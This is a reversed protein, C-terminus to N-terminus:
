LEFSSGKLYNGGPARFPRDHGPVIIGRVGRLKELTRRCRHPDAELSIQSLRRLKEPSSRYHLRSIIADGAVLLPERGREVLVSFHHQSHGPTAILRIGDAIRRPEEIWEIQEDRGMVDDHWYLQSIRYLASGKQGRLKPDIWPYLEAVLSEKDPVVPIRHCLSRWYEYELRSALIHSDPFSRNGGCHDGHIHTNIILDVESPKVGMDQLAMLVATDDVMGTDVLVTLDDDRLLTSNVWIRAPHRSFLNPTETSIIDIRLPFELARSAPGPLAPHILIGVSPHFRLHPSLRTWRTARNPGDPFPFNEIEPLLRFTIM